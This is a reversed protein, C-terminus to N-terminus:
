VGDDGDVTDELTQEQEKNAGEADTEGAKQEAFASCQKKHRAKWDIQQCTSNCYRATRCRACTLLTIPQSTNSTQISPIDESLLSESFAVNLATKSCGEAWCKTQLRDQLRKTNMVFYQKQTGGKM